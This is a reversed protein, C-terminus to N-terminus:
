LFLSPGKKVAKGQHITIETRLSKGFLQLSVIATDFSLFDTYPCRKIWGFIIKESHLHERCQIAERDRMFHM